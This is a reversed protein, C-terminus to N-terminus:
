TVGSHEEAVLCGVMVMSLCLKAVSVKSLGNAARAEERSSSVAGGGGGAAADVEQLEAVLDELLDQSSRFPSRRGAINLLARCVSPPDAAHLLLERIRPEESIQWITAVGSSLLLNM